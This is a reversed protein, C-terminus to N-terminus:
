TNMEMLLTICSGQLTFFSNSLIYFTFDKGEGKWWWWFM